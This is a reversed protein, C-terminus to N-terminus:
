NIYEWISGKKNCKSYNNVNAVIQNISYHVCHENEYFHEVRDALCLIIKNLKLKKRVRMSFDYLNMRLEIEKDRSPTETDLLANIENLLKVLTIWETDTIYNRKRISYCVRKLFSAHMQYGAGKNSQLIKDTTSRIGKEHIYIKLNIWNDIGRHISLEIQTLFSYLGLLFDDTYYLKM